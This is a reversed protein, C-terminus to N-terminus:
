LKAGCETCFDIDEIIEANCIACKKIASQDVNQGTSQSQLIDVMPKGCSTCFRTNRSVMQECGSCKVLNADNIPNSQKPMPSGCSSCFAINKAVEAGCKECHVVGKTDQIQQRYERIKIESDKIAFIMGSFDEEFDAPYKAVYLKGIQYYNNNIKKEEDSIASNIRAIDAMEKTKQVASQGASSIKKGLEDFFAM